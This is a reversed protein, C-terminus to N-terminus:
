RRVDLLERFSRYDSNIKMVNKKRYEPNYNQIQIRDISHLIYRCWIPENWSWLLWCIDDDNRIVVIIANIREVIAIITNQNAYNERDEIEAEM